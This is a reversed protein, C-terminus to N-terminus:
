FIRSDPADLKEEMLGTEYEYVEWYDDRLRWYSELSNEEDLFPMLKAKLNESYFISFTFKALIGQLVKKSIKKEFFDMGKEVRLFQRYLNWVRAGDISSAGPECVGSEVLFEQEKEDFISEAEGEEQGEALVPLEMPVFISINDTDILQFDRDIKGYDLGRLAPLYSTNFNDIGELINMRGVALLVENYLSKFDKTDLIEQHQGISIKERTIRFRLDKSYLVGPENVKFLFVECTDKKVNRNIRGALQEDSDILSINKFGLDMDIDVGAEVVQTTILLVKMKKSANRKLFNIIERRRPELITGSLVFVIEFFPKRGESELELKFTTASKKFIFEIMTFVRGEHNSAYEKSREILFDALEPLELTRKTNSGGPSKLLGFRFKVRRRFNNNQFYRRPDPLLGIFSARNQLNINLQDIRPLTASMIIFRINFYQSYQEIFYAMKDWELPPYSQLEDIIVISDALRHMPYIASKQQSKLLNFFRIHTLLCIPFQAFQLHLSNKWKNGYVADAEEQERERFGAKSHLLGIEHEELGFTKAISRHTQTILTTFPFVYFIKNVEPCLRLIEAAALMSLNTKGGGTPAELYFLRQEPRKAIVQRINRLVEVAMQARLRNLNEPSRERYDGAQWGPDDAAQFAATNYAETTRVHYLIRRRMEVDILGFDDVTGQKMYDSTALNDASTLLSFNLRGLAFLPFTDERAMAGYVIKLNDPNELAKLLGSESFQYQKLFTDWKEWPQGYIAKKLREEPKGLRPSHHEIISDAMVVAVGVLWKAEEKELSVAARIRELYFSLFLFTGLASHGHPPQMLDPHRGQFLKNKMRSLQFHPNVKGFDHFAITAIFLELLFGELLEKNKFPRAAASILRNLVRGLQHAECLQEAYHLVKDLHESLTEEPVEGKFEDGPLHALYSQHNPLISEVRMAQEFFAKMSAM